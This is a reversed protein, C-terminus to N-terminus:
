KNKNKFTFVVIMVLGFIIVGLIYKKFSFEKDQFHDFTSITTAYVVGSVIGYIIRSRSNNVMM